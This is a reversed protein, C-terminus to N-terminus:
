WVLCGQRASSVGRPCFVTMFRYLNLRYVASFGSTLGGAGEGELSQRNLFVVPRRRRRGAHLGVEAGARLGECVPRRGQVGVMAKAPNAEFGSPMVVM